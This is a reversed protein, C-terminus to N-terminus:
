GFGTGQYTAKMAPISLKPMAMPAAAAVVAGDAAAEAGAAAGAATEGAAPTAVAAPAAPPPAAAAGKLTVEVSDAGGSLVAMARKFEDPGIAQSEVAGFLQGMSM